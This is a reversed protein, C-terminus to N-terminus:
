QYPFFPFPGSWCHKIVGADPDGGFTANTCSGTGSGGPWFNGNLGSGYKVILPNAVTFNGGEDALLEAPASDLFGTLVYCAKVVNEAPDGGFAQNTCPFSGTGSLRFLFRGHAGYAIPTSNRVIDL